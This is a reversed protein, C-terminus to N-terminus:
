GGHCLACGDRGCGVRVGINAAFIRTGSSWVRQRFNDARRPRDFTIRRGARHDPARASLQNSFARAAATNGANEAEVHAVAPLGVLKFNGERAVEDVPEVRGVAQREAVLGGAGVVEEHDAAVTELLLRCHCRGAEGFIEPALEDCRGHGVCKAADVRVHAAKM